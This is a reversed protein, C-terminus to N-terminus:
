AKNKQGSKCIPKVKGIKREPNMAVLIKGYASNTDGIMKNIVDTKVLKDGVKVKVLKDGVKVRAEFEDLIFEYLNYDFKLEYRDHALVMAALTIAEYRFSNTIYEYKDNKYLVKLIWKTEKTVNDNQYGTRGFYFLCRNLYDISQKLTKERPPVDKTIKRNLRMLYSDEDTTIRHEVNYYKKSESKTKDDYMEDINEEGYKQSKFLEDYMKEANEIKEM